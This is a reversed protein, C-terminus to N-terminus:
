KTICNTYTKENETMIYKTQRNPMTKSNNFNKTLKKGLFFVIRRLFVCNQNPYFFVLPINKRHINSGGLM